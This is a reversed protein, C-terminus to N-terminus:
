KIKRDNSQSKESQLHCWLHVIVCMFSKGNNKIMWPCVTLSYFIFVWIMRESTLNYHFLASLSRCSAQCATTRTPDGLTSHLKAVSCICFCLHYFLSLSNSTSCITATLFPIPPLSTSSSLGNSVHM